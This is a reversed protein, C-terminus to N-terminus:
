HKIWSHTNFNPFTEYRHLDVTGNKIISLLRSPTTIIIDAHKINNGSDDKLNLSKGAVATLLCIRFPRGVILRKAEAEVQVALERTPIIVLARPGAHKDPKDLIQFLPILYSATKGSGTPAACLVENHAIMAPVVKGFSDRSVGLFVFSAYRLNYQVLNSTAWTTSTRSCTNVYKSTQCRTGSQLQLLPKEERWQQLSCSCTHYLGKIKQEWVVSKVSAEPTKESPAQKNRTGFFDLQKTNTPADKNWGRQHTYTIEEQRVRIRVKFVDLADQNLNSNFRLGGGLKAFVSDVSMFNPVPACFFQSARGHVEAKPSIVTYCASWSQSWCSVEQQPKELLM